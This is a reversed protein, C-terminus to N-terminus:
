NDSSRNALLFWHIFEINSCDVGLVDSLFQAVGNGKKKLTGVVVLYFLVEFKSHFKGHM